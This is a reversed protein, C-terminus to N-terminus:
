RASNQVRLLCVGSLLALLETLEIWLGDFRSIDRILSADFHSVFGGAGVALYICAVVTISTPRRNM